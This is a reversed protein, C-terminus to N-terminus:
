LKARRLRLANGVVSVSSFSMAAAAIVPSLLIGFWPGCQPCPGPTAQRVEPDMPCIYAGAPPAEEPKAAAPKAEAATAAALFQEPDATFRALCHPSCFAYEQGRPAARHPSDAPVMMGCVPDRLGPAAFQKPARRRGAPPKKKKETATKAM